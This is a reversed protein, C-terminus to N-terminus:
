HVDEEAAYRTMPMQFFSRVKKPLGRLHEWHAVVKHELEQRNMIESRGMGNSKLDRWVQEDPNLEPSYPPLFFLRLKGGYEAVCENVMRAKHMPHGDLILFVPRRAGHMLRRLFECVQMAAGRGRVVMFRLLGKASVASILNLGFRQGTGLVVPTQGAPSWTTGAHHDSRVGAEDGFYIEAGHERAQARIRPYEMALWQEVLSPNQEYAVYMPRQCTLGLQALLRGVSSVSLKVGFRDRILKAIMVRTWLAFPFKLQLPSKMTITKYLWRLDRGTLRPARGPAKRERLADWGGARYLALWNYICARAMGLARIVTEPSEGAQVQQVARIRIAELARRDMSRADRRPTAM